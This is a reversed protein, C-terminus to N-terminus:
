LERKPKCKFCAMQPRGQQGERRAGILSWEQVDEKALPATLANTARLFFCTQLNAKLEQELVLVSLHCCQQINFAVM